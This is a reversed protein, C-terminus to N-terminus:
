VEKHAKLAGSSASVLFSHDSALILAQAGLSRAKDVGAPGNPIMMFPVNAAKAAAAVHDVIEALREKANPIDGLAASLDGQGVFIADVGDVKAIDEAVDIAHLDEIMAICAVQSDQRSIHEFKGYKGWGAARSMGAFGRKGGVYRCSEAVRQAKEVSDIHPVMIGAAGCDLVSLVNADNFEGIRVVPAIGSARAALIMLDTMSRDLPAHEEDIIVFDYGVVGLIEIVQTTPLKLFTGWIQEGAMLRGRLDFLESTRTASSSTAM